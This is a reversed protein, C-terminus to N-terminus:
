LVNVIYYCIWFSLFYHLGGGQNGNVSLLYVLVLQDTHYHWAYHEWKLFEYVQFCDDALKSHRNSMPPLPMHYDESLDMEYDDTTLSM